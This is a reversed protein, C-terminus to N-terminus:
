QGVKGSLPALFRVCDWYRVWDGGSSPVMPPAGWHDRSHPDFAHRTKGIQEEFEIKVKEREEQRNKVQSLSECHAAVSEPTSDAPLFALLRLRELAVAM